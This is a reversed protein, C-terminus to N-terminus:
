CSRCMGGDLAVNLQARKGAEVCWVELRSAGFAQFFVGPQNASRFPRDTTNQAERVILACLACTHASTKLEAWTPYTWYHYPEKHEPYKSDRLDYFRPVLWAAPLIECQVCLTKASPAVQSFGSQGMSPIRSRNQAPTSNSTRQLHHILRSRFPM